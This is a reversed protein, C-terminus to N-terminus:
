VSYETIWWRSYENYWMTIIYSSYTGKSYRAENEFLEEKTLEVNEYSSRKISGVFSTEKM